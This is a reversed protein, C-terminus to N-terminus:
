VKVNQKYILRISFKICCVNMYLASRFHRLLLLSSLLSLPWTCGKSFSPFMLMPDKFDHAQGQNRHTGCVDLSWQKFFFLTYM